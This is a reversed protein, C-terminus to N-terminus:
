EDEGEKEVPEIYEERELKVQKEQGQRNFIRRQPKEQKSAAVAAAFREAEGSKKVEAGLDLTVFEFRSTNQSVKPMEDSPALEAQVTSEVQPLSGSRLEEAEELTMVEFTQKKEPEAKRKKKKRRPATNVAGRKAGKLQLKAKNSGKINTRSNAILEDAFEPDLNRFYVRLAAALYAIVIFGGLPMLFAEAPKIFGLKHGWVSGAGLLERIFGVAVLVASYGLGACISTLLSKGINSEVAERECNRVILPNVALLPFYIGLALMMDPSFKDVLIMSPVVVLMGIITYLGLRVWQKIRKLFLSTILQAVILTVITILSMILAAKLSTCIAVVPCLGITGVLVPNKALVERFLYSQNNM